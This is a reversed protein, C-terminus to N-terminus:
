KKPYKYKFISHLTRITLYLGLASCFSSVARLVESDFGLVRIFRYILPPTLSLVIYILLRLITWRLKTFDDKPRGITEAYQQPLLHVTVIVISYILIALGVVPLGIVIVDRIFETMVNIGM